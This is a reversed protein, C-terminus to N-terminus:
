DRRSVQSTPKAVIAGDRMRIRVDGGWMQIAEISSLRAGDDPSEIAAYGRRLVSHPSLAEVQATRYELRDRRRELDRRIASAARLRLLDLSQRRRDIRRVPSRLALRSTSRGLEDACWGVQDDLLGRAEHLRAAIAKAVDRRDPVVLEAAASPTPARLDAVLDAITIDTEHGIASVVPVPSRFIARALHEDNFVALEEPSGGGRAIIVVDCGAQGWLRELAQRLSEPADAGQVASASLVLTVAPFRRRIVTQIDHWVAGQRSTVVGITAPLEPLPRKRSLDFLGDAELRRHLEEFQLQLLGTGEPALYDVYLQYQGQDPYISVNGHAIIEDGQRPLDKIAWRQGKFLVSKIQCGDGSLTFYCHGAASEFFSTVEGRIWLDSLIPDSDMLDKIYATIQGVDIIQM